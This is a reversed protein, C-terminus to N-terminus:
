QGTPASGRAEASQTEVPITYFDPNTAIRRIIERWKVGNKRLDQDTRSIWTREDATAKRATGYTFARNVLCSTVAPDDKIIQSLQAIDEFKKGNLEGSTDIKMGNETTRIEGVSNFNELALGIPDTIRHCGACAPSAMHATLRQRVTRLKPDHENQVLTFDVNGPPPPVKQCLINERLAKGRLTPSSKGPHSHLALFSVHTLIGANFRQAPMEYPVWLTAGGMEQSRPLPVSYLAALSPTLFTNRTVFLERYDGDRALLHDSVTRLTQERAEDEVYKTFKPFVAADKAITAFGEFGLMDSFFARLGHEVRPSSVLRDVQQSLGRATALKGDAAAALLESDPASDWLFFSLRSATSYADLRLKGPAKPDPESREIRFLFEPEVLVTSLAAALGLNFSKLRTAADRAITTYTQIESNSLPRRFLLTAARSLFQSACADDAAAPDKPTCRILTARRRPEMVKAAVQQALREYHEMGASTMTLKRAGVALLGEDRFGTEVATADVTVTPGFVDQIIRQYQEPTLRVFSVQAADASVGTMFAVALAAVVAKVSKKLTNGM